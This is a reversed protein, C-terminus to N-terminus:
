TTKVDHYALQPVILGAKKPADPIFLADFGSASGYHGGTSKRIDAMRMRYRDEDSMGTDSGTGPLSADGAPPRRSHGLDAPINYYGGALKKIPDAFDTLSKDYAEVGVLTRQAAIVEDWFLNMFKWGYPEDPYMVAFRNLRLEETCYSVLAKVQMEPTFFNRFVYDGIHTIQDKQTLTIIPIGMKQAEMAATEATIISGVVAAAQDEIVLDRIAQSAIEPDSGSDKIIIRADTANARATFMALALEVGKLARQGFSAYRGSLPLLCGLNSRNYEFQKTLKELLSKAEPSVTGDILAALERSSLLRLPELIKKRIAAHEANPANLYALAYFAAAEASSGLIWHADGVLLYVRKKQSEFLTVLDMDAFSRVVTEYNGDYFETALIEVDADSVYPSDPYNAAVKKYIRRASGYEKRAMHIAGIKMLAADALRSKPFRGVYEHFVHLAEGYAQEQFLTDGKAYLEDGTTVQEPAKKIKPACAWLMLVAAIILVTQLLTRIDQKKLM